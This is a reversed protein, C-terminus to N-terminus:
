CIPKHHFLLSSPRTTNLSMSICFHPHAQAPKGGSCYFPSTPSINPATCHLTQSLSPAIILYSRCILPLPSWVTPVSRDLLCPAPWRIVSRTKNCAQLLSVPLRGERNPQAHVLHRLWLTNPGHVAWSTMKSTTQQLAVQFHHLLSSNVTM